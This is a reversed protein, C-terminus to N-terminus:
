DLKLEDKKELLWERIEKTYEQWKESKSVLRIIESLMWEESQSFKNTIEGLWEHSDSVAHITRAYQIIPDDIELEVLMDYIYEEPAKSPPLSFQKLMSFANEIKCERNKETGTICGGLQAKKETESVYCDGDLIIAVNSYDEKRFIYSAALM